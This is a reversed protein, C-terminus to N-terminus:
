TTALAPPLDLPERWPRNTRLMAWLRVLLRRALAVVAVKRRNKMGRSVRAVVSKGWASKRSVVWAVEVLLGRLVSPGRRTCRGVRSMTGSEILKPVLGAYSGVAAGSRFRRADDLSAVVAEALRPGVGPVTRLLAVREDAEALEDLKAEVAAVQQSVAELLDLEVHLRGRWLDGVPCDALPRAEARLQAVGARTWARNGRPLRESLGQQSFISRIANKRQTRVGVLARRHLVLRRRQRVDPAPVHVAPLQDLLVLRALRLADDRDTKRKVRRWRWAEHNANAVLVRGCGLAAAVDHVWGACDCAELAVVCRSPEAGAHAAVFDHVAAPTTTDITHFAHQRTAADMVCAVTKFKGLDLAIITGSDM